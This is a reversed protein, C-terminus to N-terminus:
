KLKRRRSYPSNFVKRNIKKYATVKYYYSKGPKATNDVYKLQKNKSITAIKKYKKNNKSRYVIYGDAKRNRTWRLTIGDSTNKVSKLTVKGVAAGKRKVSRPSECKGMKNCATVYYTYTNNKKVTSDLFSTGTSVGVQVTKNGQLNTRYIKYLHGNSVKSWSIKLTCKKADAVAKVSISKPPVRLVDVKDSLRDSVPSKFTLNGYISAAKIKYYYRKGAKVTTDDYTTQSAGKIRAIVKYGSSKSTSRYLIYEQSYPSKDWTLLLHENTNELVALNTIRGLAVAQISNSKDLSSECLSYGTCATVKYNYMNNNQIGKDIYETATSKGIYEYPGNVAEARYINYKTANEVSKWSLSIDSTAPDKVGNNLITASLGEVIGCRVFYYYSASKGSKLDKAEIKSRGAAMGSVTGDASISAKVGNKSSWKIDGPNVSDSYEPLVKVREGIDGIINERQFRLLNDHLAKDEVQVWCVARLKSASEAVIATEGTSVAVVRGNIVTAVKENLSSWTVAEEPIGAFGVTLDFTDGPLVLKYTANLSIGGILAKYLKEQTGEEVYTSMSAVTSEPAEGYLAQYFASAILFYGNYNPHKKDGMFMEMEPYLLRARRFYMGAPVVDYGTKEAAYMYGAQAYKQIDDESLLQKLGNLYVVENEEYGHTMYLLVKAEPQFSSLMNKFTLLSPMMETKLLNVPGLSCEQLVIYDFEKSGLTRILPTYYSIYNTTDLYYSLHAGGHKIVTVDVQKGNAQAVECFFEGVGKDLNTGKTFSNGIFLIKLPEEEVPQSVEEAYAIFPSGIGICCFFLLCGLLLINKRM